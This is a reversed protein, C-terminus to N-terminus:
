DVKRLTVDMSPVWNVGDDSREHRCTLTKGDDSMVGTCRVREGVWMWTDGQNILAEKIVNGESDFFWTRFQETDPDYGIIEVGGGGVEGLRGYAPHLVFHGGTVWQYVDSAVIPVSPANPAAVTQGETIWRGILANLRELEAIARGVTVRGASVGSPPQPVRPSSSKPM